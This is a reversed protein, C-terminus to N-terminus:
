FTVRKKKEVLGNKQKRKWGLGSMVGVWRKVNLSMKNRVNLKANGTNLAHHEIVTDSFGLHILKEKTEEKKKLWNACVTCQSNLEWETSFMFTENRRIGAISLIRYSTEQCSSHYSHIIALLLPELPCFPTTHNRLIPENIICQLSQPNHRHFEWGTRQWVKAQKWLSKFYSHYRDSTIM